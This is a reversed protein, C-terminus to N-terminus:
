EFKDFFLLYAWATSGLAPIFCEASDHPVPLATARIGLIEPLPVDLAPYPAKPLIHLFPLIDWGNFVYLLHCLFTFLILKLDINFLSSM